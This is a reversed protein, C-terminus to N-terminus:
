TTEAALVFEDPDEGDNLDITGDLSASVLGGDCHISVTADPDFDKLIELLDKVKM